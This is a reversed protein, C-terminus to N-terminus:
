SYMSKTKKFVIGDTGSTGETGETDTTIAGGTAANDSIDTSYFQVYFDESSFQVVWWL